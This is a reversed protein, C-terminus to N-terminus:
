EENGTMPEPPTYGPVILFTGLGYNQVLQYMQTKDEETLTIESDISAFCANIGDIHPKGARADALFAILETCDVNTQLSTAAAARAKQYSTSGMLAESFGTWNARGLLRLYDRQALQEESLDLIAWEGGTWQAEQFRADFMPTPFPGSYGLDFLSELSAGQLPLPLPAPIGNHYSFLLM